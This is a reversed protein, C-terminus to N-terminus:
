RILDSAIAQFSDIRESLLVSTLTLSSTVGCTPRYKRIFLDFSAPYTLRMWGIRIDCSGCHEGM